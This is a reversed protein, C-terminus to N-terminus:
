EGLIMVFFFYSIVYDMYNKERAEERGISSM